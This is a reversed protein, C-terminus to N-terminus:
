TLNSEAGVNSLIVRTAELFDYRAMIQGLDDLLNVLLSIMDVQLLNSCKEFNRKLRRSPWMQDNNAGIWMVFPGFDFNYWTPEFM